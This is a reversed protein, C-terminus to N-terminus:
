AIICQNRGNKKAKYLAQDARKFVTDGSDENTFQSIGCSITIQIKNGSSNFGTKEITNRLKEAIVFASQADTDPLLMTFEEGGFRSIFDTERCNEALLNAIIVLTKDGAKHGFTDNIKKFYDIDWIIMSLPTQYRHMRAIEVVLREDYGLRNPLGTLPDRIAQNHAVELKSKLIGAEKELHKITDTLEQLTQQNHDREKQEQRQHEQLHRTISELRSSVLQKLPELETATASSQRLDIMQESFSQDLLNRKRNTKLTSATTGAAKQGLETLQKTLDSLFVAMEQQESQFYKKIALLLSFTSELVEALADESQLRIKLQEAQECFQEPIETNELLHILQNKIVPDDEISQHIETVVSQEEDILEHLALLLDQITASHHNQYERLVREFETKRHPYHRNLFDFLLTPDGDNKEASHEDLTMLANSFDELEQKLSDNKLGNKLQKRIRKLYPDLATNFGTSALCLRTITKCLLSENDQYTKELADHEDLLSFYKKEWKDATNKKNFLTM